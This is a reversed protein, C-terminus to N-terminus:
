HATHKEYQNVMDCVTQEMPLYEMKLFQKSRTVDIQIPIGVNNNIFARSLGFRAGVLKLLWKPSTRRPLAYPKESCARIMNVFSLMDTTREVLIHRGESSQELAAIHARAVDRVDVFGFYLDPVGLRYKGTLLENMIKLSESRSGMVLSPGMVLGPNLVVLKWNSQQKEMKWAEKEAMVKSYSYPQHHLSSSTNFQAETFATLNQARMDCNDGFVAAISSTLVVKKVSESRNAAELVHRTGLVAPQVLDMDPDKVDLIFPSAIHLIADCGKAAVDFSGAKMLDAEFIELNGNTNQAMDTLFQYKLQNGMDRVTLRLRYGQELLGKVVWSGIYGTGGTVLVTKKM